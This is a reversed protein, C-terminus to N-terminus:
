IYTINLVQMYIETRFAAFLLACFFNVMVSKKLLHSWIQLKRCIQGCKRFFHTIFFKTKKHLTINKLAENIKRDFFENEFFLISEHKWNPALKFVVTISIPSMAYFTYRNPTIRIQIKGCESQIRFFVYYWATDFLFASNAAFLYKSFCNICSYFHYVETKVESLTNIIKSHELIERYTKASM